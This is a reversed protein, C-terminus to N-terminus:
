GKRSLWEEMIQVGASTGIRDAGAQVFAKAQDLTKIGGSAKIGVQAPLVERMLKVDELQAGSSAFGTSTKVFDVGADACIKCAAVLEDGDLYATEVIVKLLRGAEHCVSSLKALEIKPWNMGSKFASLSWVVDIEDAGNEIAKTTEYVKTETMQYGLPFGVVTVVQVSSDGLERKVKKVWFPPICVGAFQYKHADKILQNVQQDTLVPSLQTHELYTNISNM